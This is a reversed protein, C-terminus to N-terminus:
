RNLWPIVRGACWPAQKFSPSPPQAPCLLAFPSGPTRGDGPRDLGREFLALAAEPPLGNLALSQGELSFHRQISALLFTCGPAAQLAEDAEAPQLDLDDLLILAQRDRLVERIQFPTLRTGAPQEFLKQVLIALLDELPKSGSDLYVAGDRFGSALPHHALALLLATKGAGPTGYIEFRHVESRLATLAQGLEHERDLLRSPVAPLDLAPTLRPQPLTAESTKEVREIRIGDELGVELLYKGAAVRPGHGYEVPGSLAASPNNEGM